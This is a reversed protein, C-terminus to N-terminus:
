PPDFAVVAASVGDLAVDSRPGRADLRRAALSHRALYARLAERREEGGLLRGDAPRRSGRITLEAPSVEVFSRWWLKTEPDIALAVVRGDGLEAYQLPIEFPRGSRRGRYSLVLLRGSLLRHVRSGLVARFLPNAIRVLRPLRM